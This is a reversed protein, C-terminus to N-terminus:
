TEDFDLFGLQSGKRTLGRLKIIIKLNKSVQLLINIESNSHKAKVQLKKGFQIYYTIHFKIEIFILLYIILM